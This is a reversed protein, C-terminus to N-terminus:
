VDEHSRSTNSIPSLPPQSTDTSRRKTDPLGEFVDRSRKRTTASFVSDHDTHVDMPTTVEMMKRSQKEEQKKHLFKKWQTIAYIALTTRNFFSTIKTPRIGLWDVRRLGILPKNEFAKSLKKTLYEIQVQNLTDDRLAFQLTLYGRPARVFEPKRQVHESNRRLPALLIHQDNPLRYWLHSPTDLRRKDMCIRQNLHFTSFPRDGYDKTLENLNDILARTFSWPGPAATVQDIPCASLLEFKRTSQKASKTINSAYCTDLITLVDADNDDSKLIEEVKDWNAHADKQFGKGQTPNVCAALQLYKENERYVGHGTYYVILLNNPGDHEEIFTSVRSKLQLQPKVKMNLEVTETNYRFRDRFVAELEQAEAKTKLEDLEDAWKIILVSVHSYGESLAMNKAIAEDWWIRMNDARQKDADDEPSTSSPELLRDTSPSEEGAQPADEIGTVQIDAHIVKKGLPNAQKSATDTAM